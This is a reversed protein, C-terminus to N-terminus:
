KMKRLIQSMALLKKLLKMPLCQRHPVCHNQRKLKSKQFIFIIPEFKNRCSLQNNFKSLLNWLDKKVFRHGQALREAFEATRKNPQCSSMAIVNENEDFYFAVFKLAELDGEIFIESAKGHGTYTFCNDFLFTFFYPVTRLETESGIMNLAAVRGQYQASAYHGITSCENGNTYIPSNAIDGGVYIDDINTKLHIDTNISGDTNISLGSDLLFDTNLESGIGIICVDAKLTDNSLLKVASIYEEQNISLFSKVGSEMIFEVNNSEFLQMIRKGIAEGFSDKLPVSSRGVITVKAVKAACYAAAELGIFSSGLIVVHSSPKLSSDISRADDLGRLTFINKLHNGLINPKRPRSGTAIFLKDYKLKNGSSLSIEKLNTDLSIAEVNLSVEIQNEDYFSQTRLQIEELKINLYKSVKVRDYPLYSEKCIMLIRGKFSNQRLTEACTQACPGGGIIVYIEGNRSDKMVTKNMRKDTQLDSKRARVKVAGEEVTVKFCPLSDLGPYDEIDGTEIDFCAGHWPCRIRGEGLAGNVLPAGYHSCKSGIAFIKGHQKILLVKKDDGMDIERMENEGLDADNCAVHEIFDEEIEIVSEEITAVAIEISARSVEM